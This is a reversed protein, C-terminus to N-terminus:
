APDSNIPLKLATLLREFEAQYRGESKLESFDPLYFERIEKASDDGIDSDFQNWAKLDEFSVLRIPFLVRRGQEQEKRRARAIETKVQPSAVSERSLILPLRDRESIAKDIQEYVKQGSQVDHPAFWCRM